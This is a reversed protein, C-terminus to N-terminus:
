PEQMWCTCQAGENGPFNKNFTRQQVFEYLFNVYHLELAWGMVILANLALPNRRRATFRPAMCLWCASFNLGSVSFFSSGDRSMSSRLTSIM